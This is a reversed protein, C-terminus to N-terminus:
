RPEILSRIEAVRGPPWPQPDYPRQGALVDVGAGAPLVAVADGARGRGGVVARGDQVYVTSVAGNVTVLIDGDETTAAAGPTEVIFREWEPGRPLFLRLGGRDLSATGVWGAPGERRPGLRLASDPGLVLEMGGDLRMVAGAGPASVIQDGAQLPVGGGFPMPYGGAVVTVDGSVRVGYAVALSLDPTREPTQAPGSPIAAGCALVMAAFLVGAWRLRWSM